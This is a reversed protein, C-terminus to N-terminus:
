VAAEQLLQEPAVWMRNAGSDAERPLEILVWPKEPHRVVIGIPLYLQGAEERLFDREVRLRQKRGNVDEVTVTVESDRLGPKIDCRLFPMGSM